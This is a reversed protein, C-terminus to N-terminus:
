DSSHHVTIFYPIIAIVAVLSHRIAQVCKRLLACNTMKIGSYIYEDAYLM